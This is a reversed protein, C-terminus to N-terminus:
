FLDFDEFCYTALDETSCTESALHIKHHDWGVFRKWGFEYSTASIQCFQGSKAWSVLYERARQLHVGPAARGQFIVSPWVHLTVIELLVWRDIDIESRQPQPRWFLWTSKYNALSKPQSPPYLLSMTKKWSIAPFGWRISGDSTTSSRPGSRSGCAISAAPVSASRRRLSTFLQGVLKHSSSWGGISSNWASPFSM